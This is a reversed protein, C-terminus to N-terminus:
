SVAKRVEVTDFIESCAERALNSSEESLDLGYYDRGEEGAAIGTSGSGSFPDLVAGGSGALWSLCAAPLAPSFRAPHRSAGRAKPLTWVDTWLEPRNEPRSALNRPREAFMLLRESARRPRDSVREPLTARSWTVSARLVWGGDIMRGALRDPIGLLSKNEIEPVLLGQHQQVSRADDRRSSLEGGRGRNRNYANYTDGINVFLIGGPLLKPRVAAFTEVLADLYEGASGDRGIERDDDTYKRLRFYPPSTIAAVCSRDPIAPGRLLDLADGTFLNATPM